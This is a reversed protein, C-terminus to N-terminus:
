LNYIYIYLKVTTKSYYLLKVTIYIYIVTFGVQGVVEDIPGSGWISWKIQTGFWLIIGNCYIGVGM